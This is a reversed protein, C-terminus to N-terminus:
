ISKHSYSLVDLIDISSMRMSNLPMIHLPINGQVFQKKNMPCYWPTNLLQQHMHKAYERIDGVQMENTLLYRAFGDVRLFNLAKLVYYSIVHTSEDYSSSTMRPLIEGNKVTFGIRHMVRQALRCMHTMEIRLLSSFYKLGDTPVYLLPTRSRSKKACKIAVLALNLLCAYTDTFSENINVSFNDKFGFYQNIPVEVDHTNIKADMDFAHLIEHILVKVVEEKRYIVIKSHNKSYYRVTFGSNVHEANFSEGSKPFHKKFPSLIVTLDISVNIKGKVSCCYFVMFDIMSLLEKLVQQTENRHYITVSTPIGHFTTYRVHLRRFEMANIKHRLGKDLYRGSEKLVDKFPETFSSKSMKTMVNFLQVANTANADYEMKKSAVFLFLRKQPNYEMRQPLYQM